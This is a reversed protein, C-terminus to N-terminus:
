IVELSTALFKAIEDARGSEVAAIRAHEVVEVDLEPRSQAYVVATM